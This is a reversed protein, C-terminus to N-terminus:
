ARSTEQADSGAALQESGDVFYLMLCAVSDGELSGTEKWCVHTTYRSANALKVIDLSVFGDGTREGSSGM